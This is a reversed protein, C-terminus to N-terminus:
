IMGEAKGGSNGMSFINYQEWALNFLQKFLTTKKIPKWNGTDDVKELVTMLYPNETEMYCDPYIIIRYVNNKFKISFEFEYDYNFPLVTIIKKTKKSYILKIPIEEIKGYCITRTRTKKKVPNLDEIGIKLINNLTKEPATVREYLRQVAHNIFKNESEKM